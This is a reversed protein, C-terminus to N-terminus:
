HRAFNDLISQWAQRQQEIPYTQESDFTVRVAVGRPGQTFEVRAVRDGFSYEIISAWAATRRRWARLSSAERACISRPAQRTGTPLPRMGSSSIRPRRILM